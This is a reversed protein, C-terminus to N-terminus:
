HRSSLIIGLAMFFVGLIKRQSLPEKFFIYGFSVSIFITSARKVSEVIAPDFYSLASLQTIGALFAFVSSGIWFLWPAKGLSMNMERKPIKNIRELALCFATMGVNQVLGHFPIPAYALSRRDFQIALGCCISALLMMFLGRDRKTKLKPIGNLVLAGAFIVVGGLIQTSSTQLHFLPQFLLSMTPSLALVPISNSLPSVQLSLIIFVNAALNLLIDGAGWLSYADINVEKTPSLLYWAAYLPIQAGMILTLIRYPTYKIALKKRCVDLLSFSLTCVLLLSWGV